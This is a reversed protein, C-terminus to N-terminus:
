VEGAGGVEGDETHEERDNEHNKGENGMVPGADDGEDDKNGGGDGVFDVADPGTFGLLFGVEAGEEVGEGVFHEDVEGKEYKDINIYDGDPDEGDNEDAVEGDVAHTHHSCSAADGDGGREEAFELGGDLHGGEDSEEGSDDQLVVDDVGEAEDGEVECEGESDEGAGVVEDFAVFFEDFLRRFFVTSIRIWCDAFDGTASYM